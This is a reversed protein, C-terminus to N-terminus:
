PMMINDMQFEHIKAKSDMMTRSIALFALGPRHVCNLMKLILGLGTIVM